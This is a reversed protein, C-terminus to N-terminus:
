RPAIQAEVQEGMQAIARRQDHQVVTLVECRLRSSQCLVDDREGRVASHERGASCWERHAALHDM